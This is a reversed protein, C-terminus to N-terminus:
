VMARGTVALMNSPFNASYQNILTSVIPIGIVLGFFSTRGSFNSIKYELQQLQKALGNITLTSANAWILMISTIRAIISYLVCLYM